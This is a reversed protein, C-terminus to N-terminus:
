FHAVAALPVAPSNGPRAGAASASLGAGDALGYGATQRRHQRTFGGTGSCYQDGQGLDERVSLFHSAFSIAPGPPKGSASKREAVATIYIDKGPRTGHRLGPLEAVDADGSASTMTQM